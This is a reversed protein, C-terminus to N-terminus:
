KRAAPVMTARRPQAAPTRGLRQALRMSRDMPLRPQRHEDTERLLYEIEFKMADAASRPLEGQESWYRAVAVLQGVCGSLRGLRAGVLDKM